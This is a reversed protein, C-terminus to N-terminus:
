LKKDTEKPNSISLSNMGWYVIDEENNANHQRKIFMKEQNTLKIDSAEVSNFQKNIWDNNAKIKKINDYTDLVKEIKFLTKNHLNNLNLFVGNSNSTYNNNDDSIIKFLKIYIKKNKIQEIRSAIIKKDSKSYEKCNNDINSDDMDFHRMETSTITDIVSNNILPNSKINEM